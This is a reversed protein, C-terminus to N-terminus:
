SNSFITYKLPNIEEDWDTRQRQTQHNTIDYPLHQLTAMKDTTESIPLLAANTRRESPFM